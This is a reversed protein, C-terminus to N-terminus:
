LLSTSMGVRNESAFTGAGVNMSFRWVPMSGAM